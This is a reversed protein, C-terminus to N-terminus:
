PQMLRWLIVRGLRDVLAHFGQIRWVRLVREFSLISASRVTTKDLEVDEFEPMQRTQDSIIFPLYDGCIGDWTLQPVGTQIWPVPAKRQLRYLQRDSRQRHAQIKKRDQLSSRLDQRYDAWGQFVASVMERRGQILYILIRLLDEMLYGLCFSWFFAPGNIRTIFRLRGGTVQRLKAPSPGTIEQPLTQASFAHAAIASPAARISLGYLRARYCWESDEYYLPFAEDLMGVMRIAEAPLLAAAFCASPLDDWDDLQGLDLHGLGIDTGWSLAGVLNGLGNLFSPTWFLRLKAAVAACGPHQIATNVMLAVADEHLRVDPNLLFYYDGSAHRIGTNIAQALGMSTQLSILHVEPHYSEIWGASGDSSGNDVIITERPSCTQNALSVLCEELWRRSNYSVIIVSVSGGPPLSEPSTPSPTKDRDILGAEALCALGARLELPSAEFSLPGELVEALTKQDASKWLSFVVRDIEVRGGERASLLISHGTEIPM